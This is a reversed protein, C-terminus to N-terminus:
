EVIFAGSYTKRLNNRATTARARTGYPGAVVAYKGNKKRIAQAYGMNSLKKAAATANNSVSYTGVQVYYNNNSKESNTAASRATNQNNVSGISSIKVRATGRGVMNIQNAAAYSLDIIRGSKFPGRDNIVVNTSLGNDLNKVNVRTGFPLTKHAATFAHKNYIEGSATPKGHFDPGYWSADGSEVFGNASAMPYYTNGGVTYPKTSVKYNYASNGACGALATAIFVVFLHKM